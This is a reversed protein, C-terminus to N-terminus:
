LGEVIVINSDSAAIRIPKIDTYDAGDYFARCATMDEFAVIVVRDLEMGGEVSRTAGGRALYTGRAGALIDPVRESYPKYGELDTMAINGVIFAHQGDANASGTPGEVLWIHSATTAHRIAAVPAYAPDDVFASASAMDPFELVVIRGDPWAGEVVDRAGGRVIYRGGHAAILAPVAQKYADYGDADHVDITAILYATM